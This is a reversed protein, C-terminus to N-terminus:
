FHKEPTVSSSRFISRLPFFSGEGTLVVARIESDVAVRNLYGAVVDALQENIANVKGRKLLIEAIGGNTSLRVFEM